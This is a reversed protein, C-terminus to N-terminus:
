TSSGVNLGADMGTGGDVMLTEGTIYSAEDSALFLIAAAIERPEAPRKLVSQDWPEALLASRAEEVTLGRAEAQRRAHFPTVTFGPCVANVRIGQAAHDCALSRTLALLGAKTADYQAMGARGNVANTSSVNVISGRHKALEPIAFKACYAPGLLNVGLIWQWSDATAETIPGYLRVGAANVLVDLRGFREVVARVAREAEPERALDAAVSLASEGRADIREAAARAADANNDVVGVRAGEAVFLAATAEGIGGGGGTVLAVRGRLREAM